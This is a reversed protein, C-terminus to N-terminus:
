KLRDEIAELRKELTDIKKAEADTQMKLKVNENRLSNTRKEMAQIAIFNIGMFDAQNITSDNGITGYRDKGFAAYFDQAMPGYHRFTKSDQMKYNWSTLHFGAIKKLFDEGKVDEFNEKLYVSSSTSWANSGSALICSSSLDSATYFRYGGDFRATFRNDTGSNFVTTTSNDGVVFSGVHGNTSVNKGMATSYDGSATTAYGIATSGDRTASTFAGMATSFGGSATTSVGMATSSAGSATTNNGMATSYGGSANTNRGMATSGTGSAITSSGMATSSDGSATTSRGTATSYDGSAKTGGGMATSFVGSATTNFGMATADINNAITNNGIATSGQGSATTGLGMATSSYGSATTGSGMATSSGGVNAGDWETAIAYGARFAAKGPYFMLRSGAGLSPVTSLTNFTGTVLLGKAQSTGLDVHLLAAPNPLAGTTNIGVNQANTFPAAFILIATLLTKTKM